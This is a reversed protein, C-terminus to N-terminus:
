FPGVVTGAPGNAISPTLALSPPPPTVIPGAAIVANVIAVVANHLPDSTSLVYRDSFFWIAAQVAAAKQNATLLSAPENTNPYYSNLIRAVFGVNPVNAADWTGLVYGVGTQTLTRIDICYMNMTAGGGKPTAHIVGAFGENQASWGI